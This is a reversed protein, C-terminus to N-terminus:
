ENIIRGADDDGLLAAERRETDLTHEDTFPDKDGTQDFKPLILAIYGRGESEDLLLQPNDVIAPNIEILKGKIGTQLLIPDEQGKVKVSLIPATEQLHQGGKKRKGSVKNNAHNVKDSIKFSVSEIVEARIPHEPHLCTVLIRNSHRLIRVPGSLRKFKLRSNWTYRQYYRDVVSPYVAATTATTAM